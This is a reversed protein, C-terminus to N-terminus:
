EASKTLLASKYKRKFSNVSPSNRIENEIRNWIIPGKYFLSDKSVNSKVLPLHYNTSSRTNYDHVDQNLYFYSSILHPLKNKSCLYMFITINYNNLDFVNLIKMKAFLPKTHALYASSSM